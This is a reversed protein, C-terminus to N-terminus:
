GAIMTEARVCLSTLLASILDIKLPGHQNCKQM